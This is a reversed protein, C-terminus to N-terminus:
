YRKYGKSMVSAPQSVGGFFALTRNLWINWDNGWDPGPQQDLRCLLYRPTGAGSQIRHFHERNKTGLCRM